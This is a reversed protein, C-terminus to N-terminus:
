ALAGRELAALQHSGPRLHQSETRGSPHQRPRCRLKRQDHGSLDSRVSPPLRREAHPRAPAGHGSTRGPDTFTLSGDYVPSTEDPVSGDLTYRITLGDPVSMSVTVSNQYFGSPTEIVPQESLLRHAETNSSGPTPRLEAFDDGGDETRAYVTGATLSAPLTVSDVPLALETKLTTLVTIEEWTVTVTKANSLDLSIGLSGEPAPADGSLAYICAYGHPTIEGVLLMDSTESDTGVRLGALSITKRTPNYLELYNQYTVGHSVPTGPNAVCIENIKLSLVPETYSVTRYKFGLVVLLALGLTIGALQIFVITKRRPSLQKM